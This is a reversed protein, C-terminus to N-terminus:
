AREELSYLTIKLVSTHVEFAVDLHQVLIKDTTNADVNTWIDANKGWHLQMM